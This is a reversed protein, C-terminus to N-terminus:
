IKRIYLIKRHKRNLVQKKHTQLLKDECEQVDQGTFSVTKMWDHYQVFIQDCQGFLQSSTERIISFEAGECNILLKNVRGFSNLTARIIDAMALVEVRMGKSNTQKACITSRTSAPQLIATGAAGSVAKRYPFFRDRHGIVASCYADYAKELPEFALCYEPVAENFLQTLDIALFFGVSIIVEEPMFSVRQIETM